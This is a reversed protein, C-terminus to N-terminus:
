SFKTAVLQFAVAHLLVHPSCRNYTPPVAYAVYLVQHLRTLKRQQTCLIDCCFLTLFSIMVLVFVHVIGIARKCVYTTYDPVHYGADVCLKPETELVPM